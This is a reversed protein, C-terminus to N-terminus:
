VLLIIWFKRIFLQIRYILILHLFMLLKLLLLNKYTRIQPHQEEHKNEEKINLFLNQHHRNYPYILLGVQTLRKPPKCHFIM